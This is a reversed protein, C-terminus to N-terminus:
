AIGASNEYKGGLRAMLLPRGVNLLSVMWRKSHSLCIMELTIPKLVLM